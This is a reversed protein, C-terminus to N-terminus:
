GSRSACLANHGELTLRLPPLEGLQQHLPLDRRLGELLPVALGPLLLERLPHPLFLRRLLGFSFGSRLLPLFSCRGLTGIIRSMPGPPAPFVVMPNASAFRRPTLNTSRSASNAAVLPSMEM